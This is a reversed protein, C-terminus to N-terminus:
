AEEMSVIQVHMQQIIVVLNYVDEERMQELSLRLRKALEDTDDLYRTQISALEATGEAAKQFVKGINKGLDQSKVNASDVNQQM